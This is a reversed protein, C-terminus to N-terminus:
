GQSVYSTYSATNGGGIWSCSFALTVASYSSSCKSNGFVKLDVTQDAAPTASSGATGSTIILEATLGSGDVAMGPCYIVPDTPWFAPWAGNGDDSTTWWTTGTPMASSSLSTRNNSSACFLNKNTVIVGSMYVTSLNKGAVTSPEIVAAATVNVQANCKNGTCGSPLADLWNSQKISPDGAGSLM